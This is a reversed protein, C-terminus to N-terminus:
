QCVIRRVRAHLGLYADITSVGSGHDHNRLIVNALTGAPDCGTAVNAHTSHAHLTHNLQRAPHVDGGACLGSRGMRGLRKTQARPRCGVDELSGAVLLTMRPHIYPRVDFLLVRRQQLPQRWVLVPQEITATNM